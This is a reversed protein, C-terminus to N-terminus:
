AAERLEDPDPLKGGPLFALIVPTLGSLPTFTLLLSGGPFESTETTRLLCETYIQEDVEEDLWIFHQATGQFSIRGQDYSRFQLLSLGGSVHKVWVNEIADPIGAKPSKHHILHRPIMGSGIDSPSGMLKEQQIDRTTKGTDGAAWAKIPGDFRRGKWWPAYTDYAGTLHLTMEFAGAETGGVRNAKLFLRERHEAGAAFLSLHKPYLARRYPGDEKFYQRIKYNARREGEAILAMAQAREADTLPM